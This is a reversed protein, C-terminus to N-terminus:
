KSKRKKGFKNYPRAKYGDLYYKKLDSYMPTTSTIRPDFLFIRMDSRGKRRVLRGIGQKLRFLCTNRQEIVDSTSYNKSGRNAAAFPLKPIVINQVVYDKDAPIDTENIDTGTWLSGTDVWVPKNGAYYSTIYASKNLRFGRKDVNSIVWDCGRLALEEVLEEVVEHSTCLVLTGGKSNERIHIVETALAERYAKAQFGKSKTPPSFRADETYYATVNEKLWDSEIPNLADFEDPNVGLVSRLSFRYHTIPEEREVMGALSASTLRWGASVFFLLNTLTSINSSSQSFSPTKRISSLTIHCEYPVRAMHKITHMNRLTAIGDKATYLKRMNSQSKLIPKITHHIDMLDKAASYNKLASSNPKLQSLKKEVLTLVNIYSKLHRKLTRSNCSLYSDQANSLARSISLRNLFISRAINAFNHAEDILVFAQNPLIGTDEKIVEARVRAAYMGYSGESSHLAKYEEFTPSVDNSARLLSMGHLAYMAHTALIIDIDKYDTRSLEVEEKVREDEVGLDVAHLYTLSKIPIDTEEFREFYRIHFSTASELAAMFDAAYHNDSNQELWLRSLEYSIFDSTGYIRGVKLNISNASAVRHYEEELQELVAITPALIIAKKKYTRCLEIASAVIALGKGVGTSAEAIRGKRAPVHGSFFKYLEIQQPRYEGSGLPLLGSEQPTGLMAEIYGYALNLIAQSATGHVATHRELWEKNDRENIWVSVNTTEGEKPAYHIAPYGNTHSRRAALRLAPGIKDSYDNNTDKLLSSILQNEFNKDIRVTYAM